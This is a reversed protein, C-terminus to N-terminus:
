HPVRHCRKPVNREMGLAVHPRCLPVPPGFRPAPIWPLRVCHNQGLVAAHLPVGYMFEALTKCRFRFGQFEFRIAHEEATYGGPSRKRAYRVYAPLPATQAATEKQRAKMGRMSRRRQTTPMM